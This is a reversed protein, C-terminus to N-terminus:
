ASFAPICSLYSRSQIANIKIRYLRKKTVFFPRQVLLVLLFYLFPSFLITNISNKNSTTPNIKNTFPASKKTSPADPSASLNPIGCSTIPRVITAMPVLAGSAATLRVAAKFPFTSIVTPFTTPLLMRLMKMMKPKADTIVVIATAFVVTLYSIGNM